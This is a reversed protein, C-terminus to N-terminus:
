GFAEACEIILLKEPDVSSRGYADIFYDTYKDTHLNFKLTWICWFIDLHRDGVGGNGLDIFGSFDWSNLLVNPLCYDGHVLTDNELSKCNQSYFNFYDEKTWKDLCSTFKLPDFCGNQYNELVTKHYDDM